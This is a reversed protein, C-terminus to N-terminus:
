KGTKEKWLEKFVETDEPGAYKAIARTTKKFVFPAESDLKALLEAPLSVTIDGALYMQKPKMLPLLHAFRVAVSMDTAVLKSFKEPDALFDGIDLVSEPNKMRQRLQEFPLKVRPHVSAVPDCDNEILM